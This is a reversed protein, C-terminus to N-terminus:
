GTLDFVRDLYRSRAAAIASQDTARYRDRGQQRLELYKIDADTLDDREADRNGRINRLAVAKWDGGRTYVRQIRTLERSSIGGWVGGQDRTAYTLAIEICQMRTPCPACFAFAQRRSGLDDPFFFSVPRRDTHCRGDERCDCYLQLLHREDDITTM